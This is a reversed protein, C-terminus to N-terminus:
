VQQLQVSFNHSKMNSEQNKRLTDRQYWYDCRSLEICNLKCDVTQILLLFKRFFITLPASIILVKERQKKECEFRDKREAQYGISNFIFIIRM